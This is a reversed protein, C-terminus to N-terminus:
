VVLQGKKDAIHIRVATGSPFRIADEEMGDSFIVGHNPMQSIIQFNDKPCIHGFVLNTQTTRSPFPERVSYILKDEEWSVAKYPIDTNGFQRAIRSVQEMISRYWGTSGLGTSIIIGSSSQVEKEQNIKLEYRASSHTRCGIFLDNVALMHQGDNTQADAMTVERVKNRGELVEPLVMNVDGAGFPLLVGDYRAQDPNIGILPQGDLYKMVNAVLGDQGVCLVVDDKGFVMNPIFGRDVVQVRAFNQVTNYVQAVANQYKIDEDEYDAFDAGMHEIYFRVQEKTNYKFILEQLRTHRTVIVVKRMGRNMNDAEEM